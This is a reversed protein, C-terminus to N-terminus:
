LGELDFMPRMTPIHRMRLTEMERLKYQYVVHVPEAGPLQSITTVPAALVEERTAWGRLKVSKGDQSIEALVYADILKRKAVKPPVILSAYKARSARVDVRTGDRLEFNGNKTPRKRRIRDHDIEFADAFAMEGLVGDKDIRAPDGLVGHHTASYRNRYSRERAIRDVSSM